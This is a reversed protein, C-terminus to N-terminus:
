WVHDDDYFDMDRVMGTYAQWGFWASVSFYFIGLGWQVLTYHEFGVVQQWFDIGIAVVFYYFIFRLYNTLHRKFKRPMKM